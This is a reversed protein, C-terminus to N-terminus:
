KAGRPHPSTSAPAIDFRAGYRGFITILDLALPSRRRSTEFSQLDLWPVNRTDLGARVDPPLGSLSVIVAPPAVGDPVQGPGDVLLVHCGDGRKERIELHRPGHRTARRGASLELVGSFEELVQEALAGKAHLDMQSPQLLRRVEAPSGAALCAGPISGRVLSGAGILSYAGISSGPMVLVRWPLWAGTDITVEKFQVPFGQFGNMWSGHTFILCHGGIGVHDGIRVERSTDIYSYYMVICHRGLKLLSRPHPFGTARVDSTVKTYDGIDITQADLLCDRGIQVGDGLRMEGAKVITRAGIRVGDGLRMTDGSIVSGFGLHVSRGVAHGQARMLFCRVPSPLYAM